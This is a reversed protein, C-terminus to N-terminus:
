VAPAPFRLECRTGSPEDGITFVGGLHHALSRVLKQGFGSGCPGASHPLGVGDDEVLLTIEDGVRALRIQVTGLRDDPFAYKLANTVLENAILAISRAVHLPLLFHEVDERIAIPRLGVLSVRLDACLNDILPKMEVFPQGGHQLLSHVRSVVGIRSAASLLAARGNGEELSRAEVQLMTSLFQLDNKIRHSMDQLRLDKLRDEEVARALAARVTTSEHELKDIERVLEAVVFEILLGACIFLVLALAEIPDAVGLGKPELLFAAALIASLAVAWISASRGFLAASLLVAPLFLMFHAGPLGQRLLLLGGFAVAALVSAGAHRRWAPWDRTRAALGLIPRGTEAERHASM